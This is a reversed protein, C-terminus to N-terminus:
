EKLKKLRQAAMKYVEAKDRKGIGIIEIVEIHEGILRYVIRYKKKAFYLKYFGTLDIGLKNGLPKGLFPNEALADIKKAAQKKLLGALNDFDKEADPLFTIKCAM